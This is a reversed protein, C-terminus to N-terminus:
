CQDDDGQRYYEPGRVNAHKIIMIPQDCSPLPVQDLGKELISAVGKFSCIRSTLARNCAAELRESSYTRGLRMLGLCSRYGQEPHPRSALIAHVLEGTKPGINQAWTILKEPTWERYSHHAPHLHCPETRFRGKGLCILHSAVRQGKFFVEVTNSTIRVEVQKHVLHYPTSYFNNEVQIHCDINVRAKKWRAFEYSTSPLPKLAPKDLTEFLIQRSGELKKFPRQNLELLNIRLAQNLEL